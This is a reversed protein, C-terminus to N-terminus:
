VRPVVPASRLIGRERLAPFKALLAEEDKDVEMPNRYDFKFVVLALTTPSPSEGLVRDLDSTFQHLTALAHSSHQFAFTLTHLAGHKPLHSLLWILWAWDPAM